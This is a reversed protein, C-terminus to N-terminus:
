WEVAAAVGLSRQMPMASLEVWLPGFLHRRAALRLTRAALVDEFGVQLAWGPAAQPQITLELHRDETAVTDAAAKIETVVEGRDITTVREVLQPEAAALQPLVVQGPIEASTRPAAPCAFKEDIVEREPGAHVTTDSATKQAVVAREEIQEHVAPAPPRHLAWGLGIGVVLTLLPLVWARRDVLWHLVTLMMMM